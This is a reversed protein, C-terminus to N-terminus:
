RATIRRGNSTFLMLELAISDIDRVAYIMLASTLSKKVDSSRSWSGKITHQNLPAIYEHGKELGLHVHFTTYRLLMEALGPSKFRM